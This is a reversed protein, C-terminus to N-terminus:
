GGSLHSLMGSKSLSKCGYSLHHVTAYSTPATSHGWRLPSAARHPQFRRGVSHHEPLRNRAALPNYKQLAKAPPGEHAVGFSDRYASTADLPRRRLARLYQPARHPYPVAYLVGRERYTSVAGVTHKECAAPPSGCRTHGESTAPRPVPRPPPAETPESTRLTVAQACGVSSATRGPASPPRPVTQSEAVSHFSSVATTASRSVVGSTAVESMGDRRM